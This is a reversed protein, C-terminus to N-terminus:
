TGIMACRDIAVEAAIPVEEEVAEEREIRAILVLAVVPIVRLQNNSSPKRSTKM